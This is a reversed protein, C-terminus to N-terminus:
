FFSITSGDSLRVQPQEHTRWRGFLARRQAHAGSLAAREARALGAHSRKVPGLLAELVASWARTRARRVIHIPDLGYWERAPALFADPGALTRIRDDLQWAASRLSAFDRREHFPFVLRSLLGFGFPTLEELRARPLGVFSLRQARTRLRTACEDVWSAIREHPAGYMLDNGVDAICARVRRPALADLAPWLGCELIAPLERALYRSTSGYSRGHGAAVFLDLAGDAPAVRRLVEPVIWPLGLEVNSAGLLVVCTRESM